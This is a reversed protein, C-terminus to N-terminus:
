ADAGYIGDFVPKMRVRWARAHAIGQERTLEIRPAATHIVRLSRTKGPSRSVYGARELRAILNCVTGRSTGLEAGIEALTPAPDRSQILTLAQHQRPTLSVTPVAAPM